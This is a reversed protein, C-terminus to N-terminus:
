ALFDETSEIPSFDDSARSRGGLPEGRGMRQINGLGAAIGKNGNVSYAYFNVSVRGYDGSVLDGSDIIPNLQEDVVEPKNKSSCNVFWHGAYVPDDRETDGDRLPTKLNPPVKGGFTAKGAETAEAIAAKIRAVTEKDSKSVLLSVSYKPEGSEMSVKPSFANLYSLRVKGTVIKTSM